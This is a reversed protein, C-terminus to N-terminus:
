AVAVSPAGGRPLDAQQRGAAEQALLRYANLRDQHSRGLAAFVIEDTQYQAALYELRDWCQGPTGFVSPVIFPNQHQKLIEVAGEFTEACIGAVALSWRPEPLEAVPQFAARYREVIEPSATTAANQLFLGVSLATGHRAALAGSNASSGLVWVEAPGVGSASVQADAGPHGNPLSGRVYGVLDGVKREYAGAPETAGDLLAAATAPDAIGRATGLDVRGPFLAELSRFTDAVKFPSYYRLLIGAPGARLRRTRGLILPVLLEPSAHAVDTTHHESLWYRTYGLRDVEAALDLTEALRDSPHQGPALMCFDLVGLKLGSLTSASM